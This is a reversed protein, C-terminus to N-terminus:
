KGNGQDRDGLGYPHTADFMKNHMHITIALNTFLLADVLRCTLKWKCIFEM